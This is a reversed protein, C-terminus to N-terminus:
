RVQGGRAGRCAVVHGDTDVQGPPIRGPQHSVRICDRVRLAGGVRVVEAGGLCPLPEAGCGRLDRRHPMPEGRAAHVDGGHGIVIDRRGARRRLCLLREANLEGAVPCRAPLDCARWLLVRGHGGRDGPRHQRDGVQIRGPWGHPREVGRRREVGQARGVSRAREVGRRREVGHVREVGRPREVRHAREVGRPREVRHAREVRRAREVGQRRGPPIEVDGRRARPVPCLLDRGARGRRVARM